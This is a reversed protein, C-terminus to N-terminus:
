PEERCPSTLGANTYYPDPTAADKAAERLVKEVTPTPRSALVRLVSSEVAEIGDEYADEIADIILEEIAADPSNAPRPIQPHPCRECAAPAADCDDFCPSQEGSTEARPELIKDSGTAIAQSEFEDQSMAGIRKASEKIFRGNLDISTQRVEAQPKSAALREAKRAELHAVAEEYKCALELTIAALPSGSESGMMAEDRAHEILQESVTM